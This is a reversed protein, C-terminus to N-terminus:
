SGVRRPPAQSALVGNPGACDAAYQAPSWIWRDVALYGITMAMVLLAGRIM